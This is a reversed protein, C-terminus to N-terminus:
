IENQGEETQTAELASIRWARDGIPGDSTIEVVTREGKQLPVQSLSTGPVVTRIDERTIASSDGAEELVLRALGDATSDFSLQYRNDSKSIPLIRVGSIELIRRKSSQGGRTGSGGQGDGEGSGGNGGGEGGAGTGSGGTTGTDDGDGESPDDSPDSTPGYPSVHRRIPKLSLTVQGGFGKEGKGDTGENSEEDFPDEPQYDPLYTALESLVTKKGGEPPGAQKRIEHRIWETIRNLAKRGRDRDNEPLREPEFQDHQPNEMRRLLENGDPDEFLCVAAFDEFGQFRLLKQQRTTIVMGTGRVLAVKSPLGEETRIWLKCHGLDADQKEAEPEDNSLEWFIRAESLSIDAGVDSTDVQPQHKELDDFWLDLTHRDIEILESSPEPEMFLTLRGTGIAFFFNGIASAAIRRRWNNAEQFGTITISTGKIPRQHRDRRRFVDPLHRTLERCGQKVGFFGTGQVEEGDEDTHTMLVSKGQFKEQTEGDEEFCTWYFVTRIASVAFPAYKGIGHSGGAGQVEPKHSLGQMKVLARWHDGRLGTTNDDSVRLCQIMESKLIRSADVLATEAALNDRVDKLCSRIAKSLENRGLHDGNLDILEFSVHVPENCDLRADLSNQITERALSAFPAGTFHAMGPDNFGAGLGGSTPPFRWGVDINTM